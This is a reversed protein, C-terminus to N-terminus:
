ARSRGTIPQRYQTGCGTKFRLVEGPWDALLDAITFFNGLSKSMKERGGAPLRQADLLEGNGRM